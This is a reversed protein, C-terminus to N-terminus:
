RGVPDRGAGPWYLQGGEDLATPVTFTDFRDEGVLHVESDGGRSVAVLAGTPDVAVARRQAPSDGVPDWPLRGPVPPRSMAPLPVEGDQQLAQDRRDILTLTDAEPHITAVAARGGGLGFRFALGAPLGISTSVGTALDIEVLANSWQTWNTPSEPGGRVIGLASGTAPDFRLYFARGPVPWPVVGIPRPVGKDVVFRELGRSTATAFIGSAQDVVDGHGDDALDDTTRGALLPVHAGVRLCQQLPIAEIAGPERHRLVVHLSGDAQDPAVLVGPEGTQTRFRTSSGASRDIVTVVDSWPEANAGLGTSVVLHQGAPDCALHEAPIAVPVSADRDGGRIVVAGGLDDVGAWAGEELALIGAHEALVGSGLDTIVCDRLSYARGARHDAIVLQQSSM